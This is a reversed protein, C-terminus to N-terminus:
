NSTYYDTDANHRRVLRDVQAASRINEAEAVSLQARNSIGSMKLGWVDIPTEGPISKRSVKM